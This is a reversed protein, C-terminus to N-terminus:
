ANGGKRPGPAPKAHLKLFAATAERARRDIEAPKPVDIAGLLRNLMLDGWLLAFFQEMMHQPDGPSLVGAAQARALLEALANRNVSRSTNLIAAVDPSRVAESIALRYITMVAPQTVERIVTAGFSTLTSALEERTRPAPLDPALRMRAARNAICTVLLAQKNPYNAYLDRKSVKARTAIAHMSTNAYGNAMFAEFAAAIIRGCVANQPTPPIGPHAAEKMRAKM